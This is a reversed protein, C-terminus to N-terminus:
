PHSAKDDNSLWDSFVTGMLLLYQMTRKIFLDVKGYRQFMVDLALTATSLLLFM